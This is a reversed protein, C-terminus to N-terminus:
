HLTINGQRKNQFHVKGREEWDVSPATLITADMHFVTMAKQPMQYTHNWTPRKKVYSSELEINILIIM